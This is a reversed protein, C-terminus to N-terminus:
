RQKELVPGIGLSMGEREEGSLGRRRRQHLVRAAQARARQQLARPRRGGADAGAMGGRGMGGRSRESRACRGTGRLEQQMGSVLAARWVGRGVAGM